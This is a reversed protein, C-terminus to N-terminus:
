GILVKMATFPSFVCGDFGVWGVTADVRHVSRGGGGDVKLILWFFDLASSMM